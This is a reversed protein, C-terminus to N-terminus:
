GERAPHLANICQALLDGVLASQSSGAPPLGIIDGHSPDADYIETADLPTHVLRIAPWKRGVYDKVAGVNLEALRGNMGMNIRALRRIESLQEPKSLGSFYELWNVSLESRGPTLFFANTIVRGDEIFSGGIYRVVNDGDPIDNGTM